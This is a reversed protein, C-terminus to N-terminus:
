VGLVTTELSLSFSKNKPVKLTIKVCMKGSFKMSIEPTTRFIRLNEEYINAIKM